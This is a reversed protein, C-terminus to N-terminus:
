GGFTKGNLVNKISSQSVNFIKSIQLHTMNGNYYMKKIKPFDEISIKRFPHFIGKKFSGSTAKAPRGRNKKIMDSVNDFQTGLFLHDPRVCKRNDCKHLVQLGTYIPGKYLKWTFTHVNVTKNCFSFSGYGTSSLCAAWEWCDRMKSMHIKSLFRLRVKTNVYLCQSSM